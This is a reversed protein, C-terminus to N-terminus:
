CDPLAKPRDKRGTQAVVEVAGVNAVLHMQDVAGGRSRVSFAYAVILSEGSAIVKLQSTVVTGTGTM